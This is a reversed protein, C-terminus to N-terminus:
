LIISANECSNNENYLQPFTVLMIYSWQPHEEVLYQELSRPEYYTLEM